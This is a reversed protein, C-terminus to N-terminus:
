SSAAARPKPGGGPAVERELAAIADDLIALATDADAADLVLPPCLRITNKGSGLILLGREFALQVIRDRWEPARERTSPDKVIEVGIM